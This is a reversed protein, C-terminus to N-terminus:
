HTRVASVSQTQNSKKFPEWKYKCLEIEATGADVEGSFQKRLLELFSIEEIEGHDNVV